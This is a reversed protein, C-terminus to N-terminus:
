NVLHRGQQLSQHLDEREFKAEVVERLPVIETDRPDDDLEPISKSDICVDAVEERESLAQM